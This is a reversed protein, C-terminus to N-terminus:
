PSSMFKKQDVISDWEVIILATEPKEVYQGYYAHHAGHVAQEPVLSGCIVKSAPSSPNALSVDAKLQFTVIETIM